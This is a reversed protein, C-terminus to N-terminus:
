LEMMIERRTKGSYIGDLFDDLDSYYEEICNHCHHNEPFTPRYTLAWKILDANEEPTIQGDMYKNGIDNLFLGHGKKAMLSLQIYYGSNYDQQFGVINKGDSYWGYSLPFLSGEYNERPVFVRFGLAKIKECNALFKERRTM